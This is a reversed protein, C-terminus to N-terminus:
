ARIIAQIVIGLIAAVVIGIHWKDVTRLPAKGIFHYSNGSAFVRYRAIPVIPIFFFVFYYTTIYTGDEPDRNSEGYMRGGMGNVTRLTPAAKVHTLGRM